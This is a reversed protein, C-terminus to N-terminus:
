SRRPRFLPLRRGTRPAPRRASLRRVADIAVQGVEGAFFGSAGLLESVTRYAAVDMPQLGLTRILCDSVFILSLNEDFTFVSSHVGDLVSRLHDAAPGAFTGSSLIYSM